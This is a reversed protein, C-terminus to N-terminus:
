TNKGVVVIISDARVTSGFPLCHFRNFVAILWGSKTYFRHEEQKKHYNQPLTIINTPKLITKELLFHKNDKANNDHDNM